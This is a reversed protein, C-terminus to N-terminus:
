TSTSLIFNQTKNRMQSVCRALERIKDLLLGRLRKCLRHKYQAGPTCTGLHHLWCNKRYNWLNTRSVPKSWTVIVFFISIVFFVDAFHYLLFVVLWFVCFYGLLTFCVTNDLGSCRVPTKNQQFAWFTMCSRCSSEWESKVAAPASIDCVATVLWGWGVWSTNTRSWYAVGDGALREKEAFWALQCDLLRTPRVVWRRSLADTRDDRVSCKSTLADVTM